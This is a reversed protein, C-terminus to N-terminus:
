PARFTIKGVAEILPIETGGVTKTLRLLGKCTRATTDIGTPGTLVYAYHHVGDDETADELVATYWNGPVDSFPTGPQSVAAQCTWASSVYDDPTKTLEFVIYEVTGTLYSVDTM